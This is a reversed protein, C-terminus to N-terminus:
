YYPSRFTVGLKNKNDFDKTEFSVIITQTVVAEEWAFSIPIDEDISLMFLDRLLKQHDEPWDRIHKEEPQPPDKPSPRAPVLKHSIARDALLDVVTPAPPNRLKDSVLGKAQPASFLANLKLIFPSQSNFPM